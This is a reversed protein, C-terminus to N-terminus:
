QAIRFIQKTMAAFDIPRFIDSDPQTMAERQKMKAVEEIVQEATMWDGTEAMTDYLSQVIKQYLEVQKKLFDNEKLAKQEKTRLFINRANAEKKLASLRERLEENEYLTNSIHTASILIVDRNMLEDEFDDFTMHQMENHYDYITNVLAEERYDVNFEKKLKGIPMEMIRTLENHIEKCLEDPIEYETVEDEITWGGILQDSNTTYTATEKM